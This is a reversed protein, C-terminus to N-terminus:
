NMTAIVKRRMLEEVLSSILSTIAMESIDNCIHGDAGPNEGDLNEIIIIASMKNEHVLKACHETLEERNM